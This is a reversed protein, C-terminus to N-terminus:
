CCANRPRTTAFRPQILRGHPPPSQKQEEGGGRAPDLIWLQGNSGSYVLSKIDPCYAMADDLRNPPYSKSKLQTWQNTQLDLRWAGDCEDHAVSSETKEARIQNPATASSCPKRTGACLRLRPLRAPIDADAGQREGASPRHPLRRDQPRDKELPRDQSARAPFEGPQVRVPLQRLHHHRRAEQRVLPRLIPRAPWGCRLRDQELRASSGTAREDGPDAPRVTPM